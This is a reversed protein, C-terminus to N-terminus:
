KKCMFAFIAEMLSEFEEDYVISEEVDKPLDLIRTAVEIPRRGNVAEGIKVVDINFVVDKWKEPKNLKLGSVKGNPTQLEVLRFWSDDIKM